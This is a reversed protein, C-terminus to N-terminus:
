ELNSNIWKVIVEKPMAGIKRDIEKGEKLLIFTPISMVEFKSAQENDQEVNVKEFEVKGELEKEVDEMIPDMAKCPGCWDAYFDILKIM